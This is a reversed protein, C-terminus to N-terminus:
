LLGIHADATAETQSDVMHMLRDFPVLVTQKGVDYLKSLVRWTCSVFPRCCCGLASLANLANVLPWVGIISPHLCTFQAGYPNVM